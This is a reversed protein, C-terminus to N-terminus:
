RVRLIGALGIVGSGLLLMTGPEPVPAIIVYDSLGGPYDHSIFTVYWTLNTPVDFIAPVSMVEWDPDGPYNITTVNAALTCSSTGAGGDDYSFFCIDLSGGVGANLFTLSDSPELGGMENVVQSFESSIARDTINVVVCDTSGMESFYGSFGGVVIQQFTGSYQTCNVDGLAVGTTFLCALAVASISSTRLVRKKM